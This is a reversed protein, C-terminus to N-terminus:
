LNGLDKLQRKLDYDQDTIVTELVRVREELSELQKLRDFVEDIDQTTSAPTRQKLYNNLVGAITGLAVIIVVMEFVNM